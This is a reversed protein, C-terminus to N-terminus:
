AGCGAGRESRQKWTAEPPQFPACIQAGLAARNGRPQQHQAAGVRGKRLAKSSVSSSNWRMSRWSHASVHRGTAPRLLQSPPTTSAAGANFATGRQVRVVPQCDGVKRAWTCCVCCCCRCKYCAGGALVGPDGGRRRTQGEAGRALRRKATKCVLGRRSAAAKSGEASRQSVMHHGDSRNANCLWVVEKTNSFPLGKSKRNAHM